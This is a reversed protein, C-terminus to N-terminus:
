PRNGIRNLNLTAYAIVGAAALVLSQAIICDEDTGQRFLRFYISLTVLAFVSAASYRLVIREGFRLGDLVRRGSDKGIKSAQQVYSHVM